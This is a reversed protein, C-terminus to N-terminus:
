PYRPNSDREKRKEQLNKLSVNKETPDLFHIAQQSRCFTEKIFFFAILFALGYLLSMLSLGATYSNLSYLHDEQPPPSLRQIISGAISPVVGGIFMVAFNNLGLSTARVEPTVQEAMVAFSLTQGGSAIGM